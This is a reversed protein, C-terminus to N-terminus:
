IALAISSHQRTDAVVRMGKVRVEHVSICSMRASVASACPFLASNWVRMLTIRARSARGAHSPLVGDARSISMWSRRTFRKRWDRRSCSKYRKPRLASRQSAVDMAERLAHKKGILAMSRCDFGSAGCGVLARDGEQAG